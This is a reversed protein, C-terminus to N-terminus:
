GFILTADVTKGLAASEFSDGAGYVGQREFGNAGQKWVEILHNDPDVMWYERTGHQEYLRFKATKDRKATSPSLVEVVLDPAGVLRRREVKCISNSSVWVLDPQPINHEDLYVEIPSIYLKGDPILPKLTFATNLIIDQHLVIPPAMEIVEGDILEFRREEQATFEDFEAASVRTTTMDAM